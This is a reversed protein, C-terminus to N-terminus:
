IDLYENLAERFSRLPKHGSTKWLYNELPSYAPRNAPRPFQSTDCPNVAVNTKGIQRLIEVTFEYWSVIESNTIHYTGYQPKTILQCIANSLDVTYTPSGFQDNVVTLTDKEKALNVMTKVFNNGNKGFLWQTRIIYYKNCLSRIFEEGALKTEGYASIPNTRDHELYSSGKKGDFVYDTSIHVLSSNIENSVVALNRAGIANIKYASDYETECGDVNTFAACNIIIDPRVNSIFEITNNIDTIDLTEYGTCLVEHENENENSLINTLDSGLMGKGGAILIKM